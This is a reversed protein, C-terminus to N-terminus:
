DDGVLENAGDWGAAKAKDIAETQIRLFNELIDDPLNSVLFGYKEWETDVKRWLDEIGGALWGQCTETEPIIGFAWADRIIKATDTMGGNIENDIGVYSKPEM